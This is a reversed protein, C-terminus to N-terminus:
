EKALVCPLLLWSYTVDAQWRRVYIEPNDDAWNGWAIVPIGDPGIARRYRKLQDTREVDNLPKGVDKAEIYGIPIGDRSVTYDPAGCAIRKPENTAVINPELSELL